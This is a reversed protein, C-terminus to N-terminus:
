EERHPDDEEAAAENGADVATVQFREGRFDDAPIRTAIAGPRLCEAPLVAPFPDIRAVVLRDGIRFNVGDDDRDRRAEMEIQRQLGQAGALVHDNLLRREEPHSVVLLDSGFPVTRLADDDDALVIVVFREGHFQPLKQGGAGDALHDEPM